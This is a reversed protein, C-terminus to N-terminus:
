PRIWREGSDAMVWEARKVLRTTVVCSIWSIIILLLALAIAGVYTSPDFLKQASVWDMIM